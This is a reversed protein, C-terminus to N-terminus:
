ALGNCFAFATLASANHLDLKKMINSRHKEVTKHSISLYKAMQKNTMGEAILKILERERGTLQSWSSRKSEPSTKNLYGSIVGTCIGPSLYTKGNSVSKIANILDQHTDDKLVYGDAGARLTAQIHEESNHITLVIIKTDPLRHKIPSIAETGNTHPMSLDMLILNPKLKIAQQIATKGDEAEAVIKMQANTALLARLGERFIAHNDAILITQISETM